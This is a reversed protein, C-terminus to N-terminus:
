AGRAQRSMFFVLAATRQPWEPPLPKFTPGCRLPKPRYVGPMRWAPPWPGVYREDRQPPWARTTPRGDPSLTQHQRPKTVEFGAQKLLEIAEAINPSM